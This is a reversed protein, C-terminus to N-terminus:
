RRIQGLDPAFARALLSLAFFRLSIADLAALIRQRCSGKGFRYCLRIM